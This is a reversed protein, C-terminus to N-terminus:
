ADQLSKLLEVAEECGCVIAVEECGCPCLVKDKGTKTKAGVTIGVGLMILVTLIAIFKKM